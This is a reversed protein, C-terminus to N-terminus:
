RKIIVLIALLADINTRLYRIAKTLHSEVTKESIQLQKAIERNTKHQNRSLEFVSRCKIPLQSVFADVTEKLEKYNIYSETPNELQNDNVVLLSENYSNKVAEARKYNLVLYKISTHLYGTLSTHIKLQRRNIWFTTFFNQVIEQAAERERLRKYASSYLELWYRNYIEEFAAIDGSQLLAILEDDSLAALKTM